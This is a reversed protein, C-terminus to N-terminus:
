RWRISRYPHPMHDARKAAHRRSQRQYGHGRRDKGLLARGHRRRGRRRLRELFPGFDMEDSAVGDRRFGGLGAVPDLQPHGLRDDHVARDDNGFARGRGSLDRLRPVVSQEAPRALEVDRDGADVCATPGDGDAPLLVLLAAASRDACDTRADHEQRQGDDHLALFGLYRGARRDVDIDIPVHREHRACRCRSLRRDHALRCRPIVRRCDTRGTIRCGASWRRCDHM